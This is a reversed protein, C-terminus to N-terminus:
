NSSLKLVYIGCIDLYHEFMPKLLDTPFSLEKNAVMAELYQWM